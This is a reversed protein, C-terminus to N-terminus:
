GQQQEINCLCEDRYTGPIQGGLLLRHVGEAFVMLIANFKAVTTQIPNKQIAQNLRKLLGFPYDAEKIGIPLGLPNSAVTQAIDGFL